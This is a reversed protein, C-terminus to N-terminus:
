LPDSQQPQPPSPHSRITRSSPAPHPPYHLYTPTPPTPQSTTSGEPPLAITSWKADALHLDLSQLAVEATMRMLTIQQQARDLELKLRDLETLTGEGAIDNVREIIGANSGESGACNGTLVADKSGIGEVFVDGSTPKSSPPAKAHANAYSDQMARMAVVEASPPPANKLGMGEVVTDVAERIHAKGKRTPPRRNLPKFTQLRSLQEQTAEM